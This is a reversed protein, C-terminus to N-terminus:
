LRGLRLSHTNENFILTQTTYFCFLNRLEIKVTIGDENFITEPRDKIYSKRIWLYIDERLKIKKMYTCTYLNSM